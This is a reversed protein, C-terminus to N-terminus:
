NVVLQKVTKKLIVLVVITLNRTKRFATRGRGLPSQLCSLNLFAMWAIRQLHVEGGRGQRRGGGRVKVCRPDNM